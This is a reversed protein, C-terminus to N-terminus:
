RPLTPPFGFAPLVSNDMFLTLASIGDAALTLVMIGHAHAVSSRGDVVYCGFAPQGNARTPILRYRRGDRFAVTALFHAIREPGQYQLPLPPMTLWADDTLLAVVAAVDGREFAEAFRAVRQREEASSPMPARERDREPLREALAARARKLAGNVSQETVGLMEAVEAARYGLVDRLLLVARQRPVLTQVAAVFALSLSEKLEYRADPGAAGDPLDELLADPYPQLWMADGVRTPLPM